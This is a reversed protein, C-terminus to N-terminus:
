AKGEGLGFFKHFFFLKMNKPKYWCHNLLSFLFKQLVDHKPPMHYINNLLLLPFVYYLLINIKKEFSILRQQLYFERNVLCWVRNLCKLFLPCVIVIIQNQQLATTVKDHSIKNYFIIINQNDSPTSLRFVCAGLTIAKWIHGGTTKNPYYIIYNQIKNGKHILYFKFLEFSSVSLKKWQYKEKKYQEYICVHCSLSNMFMYLLHM